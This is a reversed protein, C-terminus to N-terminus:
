KLYVAVFAAIFATIINGLVVLMTRRLKHRDGDLRKIILDLRAINDRHMASQARLGFEGNDEYIVSHHAEVQKRLEIIQEKVGIQVLELSDVVRMLKAVEMRLIAIETM